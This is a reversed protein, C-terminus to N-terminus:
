DNRSGAPKRFARAHGTIPKLGEATMDQETIVVAGPACFGALNRIARPKLDQPIRVITALCIVLDFRHQLGNLADSGNDTLDLEVTEELGNEINRRIVDLSKRSIDAVTLRPSFRSFVGLIEETEYNEYCGLPLPLRRIATELRKVPRWKGFHNYRGMGRVAMGPGIELVRLGRSAPDLVQDAVFQFLKLNRNVFTTTKVDLHYRM